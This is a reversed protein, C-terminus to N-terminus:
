GVASRGVIGGPETPERRSPIVRGRGRASMM